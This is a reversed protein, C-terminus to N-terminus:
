GCFTVEILPSELIMSGGYCIFGYIKPAIDGSGYGDYANYPM